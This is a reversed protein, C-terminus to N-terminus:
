QKKKEENVYVYVTDDYIVLGFFIGRLLLGVLFRWLIFKHFILAFVVKFFLLVVELAIINSMKVHIGFKRVAFMVTPIILLINYLNFGNIFFGGIWLVFSAIILGNLM